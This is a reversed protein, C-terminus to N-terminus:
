PYACHTKLFDTLPHFIYLPHGLTYSIVCLLIYFCIPIDLLVKNCYCENAKLAIMNAEFDSDIEYDNLYKPLNTNRTSRRRKSNENTETNKQNIEEKQINKDVTEISISKRPTEEFIVNRGVIQRRDKDTNKKYESFAAAGSIGTETQYKEQRVEEM